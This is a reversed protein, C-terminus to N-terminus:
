AAKGTRKAPESVQKQEAPNKLIPRPRDHSVVSMARDVWARMSEAPVFVSGANASGQAAAFWVDGDERFLALIKALHEPEGQPVVAGANFDLLVRGAESHEPGVLICPRGVALASYLKCPMLFGAADHHMTVLHVDGSEMLSKLSSNPQWPLLKINDLGRRAREAALRDFQFGNGVFVFEIDKHSKQLIQAAGLITEVPHARGLTGAYLVRFKVDNADRFLNLSRKSGMMRRDHNKIDDCAPQANLSLERDPWNPIVSIVRADLGRHILARAMCRGVVIIRECKKMAKRSMRILFNNISEPLSYGLVPMLEPYLDQCWHIHRSKKRGALISGAVVLLPPDTMTVILDHRPLRFAAAFLKLWIISYALSTKRPAKASIRHLSIAGDKEASKKRGTALVTVDWGHESFAHALDRLVRGSAGKDPQYVRNIFLVSPKQM